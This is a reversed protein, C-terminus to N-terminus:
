QPVVRGLDIRQRLEEDVPAGAIGDLAHPREHVERVLLPALVVDRDRHCGESPWVLLLLSACTDRPPDIVVNPTSTKWFSYRAASASTTSATTVTLDVPPGGPGAAPAGWWTSIMMMSQLPEIFSSPPAFIRAARSAVHAAISVMSSPTDNATIAPVSM